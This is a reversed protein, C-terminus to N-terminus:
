RLIPYEPFTWGKWGETAQVFDDEEEEEEGDGQNDEDKSDNELDSELLEIWYSLKKSRSWSFSNDFKVIDAGLFLSFADKIHKCWLM